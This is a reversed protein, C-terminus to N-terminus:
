LLGPFVGKMQSRLPTPIKFKKKKKKLNNNEQTNTIQFMIYTQSSRTVMIFPTPNPFMFM